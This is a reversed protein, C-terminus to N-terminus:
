PWIEVEPELDLGHREKVRARVTDMLEKFQAPTAHGHNVLFNAHVPSVEADGVRLGKLGAQEILWGAIQGPPNKFICGATRKGRPQSATRKARYADLLGQIRVPDGEALRATASLVVYGKTLWSKRYAFEGLEPSKEILEGQPTLFRYRSLVQVWECGHAGANMRIAGGLSGPIGGAWELGSLGARMAVEALSMHNHSAPAALELGNRVAQGTFRLRLVPEEIDGMVLLNSGGGLVRYKLGHRACTRVFVQAEGETSPEFLWRCFGGIGLMTLREFPVDRKHPVTLLQEPLPRAM